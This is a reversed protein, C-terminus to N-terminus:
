QDYYPEDSYKIVFKYVNWENVGTDEISFQWERGIPTSDSSPVLWEYIKHVGNGFYQDADSDDEETSLDIDFSTDIDGETNKLGFTLTGATGTYFVDIGWVRKLGTPKQFDLYGSKWKSLITSESGTGVKSYILQISYNDLSDLTPSYAIDTTTFKGRVQLYDNVTLASLDSGSPDSYEDSWALGDATVAASTAASRVAFTIDGYTGLSENWYLKDYDSANVQIAGSWWYGTTDKRNVTASSYTASNIYQGDMSTDNIYIGWGLLVEPESETGSVVLSDKTGEDFDSKYRITLTSLASEQVSIEGGDTSAGTYLTGYDTGSDFAEFAGISLDDIVYADRQLDLILVVDNEAAGSSESTYALSYENQFYYGVSEEINAVKIDRIDKTVVDSVLQSTEGNYIYIGDWGLYIIGLPSKTATYPAPCGVHSFTYFYWLTDDANQTAFNTITNTKGVIVKGLQEILFTIEDGDDVRVYDYDAVDFFQYTNFTGSWYLYSNYSPVNGCFLREKHITIHKAVPPTVNNGASVTSWKPVNDDDADDDSEYDFAGGALTTTTNDDTFIAVLYFTTDAEVDARTDKGLTRYIYRHTTGSVGLPIDTLTIDHVDAGTLIPNSRATSYSYTTGDYYAVKYQYWKSADLTTGTDLEAYPAGLDATLINVTRAEDTNATTTTAGDYKQCNDTGNCGIATDIYTVWDWQLGNTLEDRIITFLGTDDDGIKIYTSGTAILVKTDDSKYYRHLSTVPFDGMTGYDLTEKRKALSGYIDNSRVNRAETAENKKLLYPSVQSKLMGSFDDVVYVATHQAPSNVIGVFLFLLVFLTKKM